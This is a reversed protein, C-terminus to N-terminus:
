RGSGATQLGRREAEARRDADCKENAAAVRKDREDILTTKRQELAAIRQSIANDRTAGALNNRSYRMSRYEDDIENQAQTIQGAYQAYAADVAGRCSAEVSIDRVADAVQGHKNAATTDIEKADKGCEYKSFVTTGNADTCKYVKQAHAVGALALFGALAFLYRKM